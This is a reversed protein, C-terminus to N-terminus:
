LKLVSKISLDQYRCCSASILHFCQNEASHISGASRKKQYFQLTPWYDSRRHISRSVPSELPNWGLPPPLPENLYVATNVAAIDFSLVEWFFTPGLSVLVYLGWSNAFDCMMLALMPPCKLM